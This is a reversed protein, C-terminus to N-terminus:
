KTGNTPDVWDQAVNSDVGNWDTTQSTAMGREGPQLCAYLEFTGDSRTHVTQGQLSTLGGFRVTLDWTSDATVLGDFTWCGDEGERAHFDTIEPIQHQQDQNGTNPSGGGFKGLALLDNGSGNAAALPIALPVAVPIPSNSQTSAPAAPQGSPAPQTGPGDPQALGVSTLALPEALPPVLLDNPQFASPSERRELFELLPRVGQTWTTSSKPRLHNMRWFM